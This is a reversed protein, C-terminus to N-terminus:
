VVYVNAYVNVATTTPPYTLSIGKEGANGINFRTATDAINHGINSLIISKGPDAAPVADDIAKGDAGPSGEGGTTGGAGTNRITCGTVEIDDSTSTINVGDGGAGGNAAANDGGAGTRLM